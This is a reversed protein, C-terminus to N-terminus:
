WVATMAWGQFLKGQENFGYMVGDIVWPGIAADGNEDGYSWSGDAYHIWGSQGLYIKKYIEEDRTLGCMTCTYTRIGPVTYGPERTITGEDWSHPIIPLDTQSSYGCVTCHVKNEWGPETCTAAKDPDNVLNAHEQAVYKLNHSTIWNM